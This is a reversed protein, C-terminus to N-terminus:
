PTTPNAAPRGPSDKAASVEDFRERYGPYRGFFDYYFDFRFGGIGKAKFDAEALAIFDVPTEEDESM